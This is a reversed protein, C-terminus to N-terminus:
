KSTVAIYSDNNTSSWCDTTICVKKASLILDKVKNLCQEYLAPVMTHSITHRNPLEYGPNLAHVFARFGTDEVIRFPQFDLVFM